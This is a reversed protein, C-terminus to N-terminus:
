QPQGHWRRSLLWCIASSVVLIAIATLAFDWGQRWIPEGIPPLLHIVSMPALATAVAVWLGSLGAFVALLAFAAGTLLAYPAGAMFSVVLWGWWVEPWKGLPVAYRPNSMGEILVGVFLGISAVMPGVVVFVAVIKAIRLWRSSTAETAFAIM